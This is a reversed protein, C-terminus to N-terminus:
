EEVLRHLIRVLEGRAQEDSFDRKSPHSSLASPHAVEDGASFDLAEEGIRFHFKQNQFDFSFSVDAEGDDIRIFWGEMASELLKQYVWLFDDYYRMYKKKRSKRIYVRFRHDGKRM